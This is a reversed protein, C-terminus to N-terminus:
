LCMGMVILVLASIFTLTWGVMDPIDELVIRKHPKNCYIYLYDVNELMRQRTM